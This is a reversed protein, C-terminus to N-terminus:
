AAKLTTTKKRQNDIKKKRSLYLYWGTIFFLPMLLSAIMMAILGAFGFYEGSHLPLMSNMLREEIPKNEFLAQSSQLTHTDLLWRSNARFHKANSALYNVSFQEGVPLDITAKQYGSVQQQFLMWYNNISADSSPAPGIVPAGRQPREVGTLQYLGDRYWDYSWYLGTLSALLYLPLVWTGVVAHAQWWFPRGTKGKRWSLWYRWDWRKKGKPWRFYIGTLSLVMLIITSAGVVQKGVDGALLWRHLRMVDIFFERGSPQGLLEGSYPNLYQQEGRRQGPLPAFRVEAALHDQPYLTLNAIQKDPAQQEVKEILQSPALLSGSPTVTIVGPNLWQLIQRELSLMGGTVGVIM